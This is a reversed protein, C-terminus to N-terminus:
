ALDWTLQAGVINANAKNTGRVTTVQTGLIGTNNLPADKIFLHSYGIAVNIAKTAQFKAGISVIYRDDDALRLNRDVDNVPSEDFGAGAMLTLQENWKYHAGATFAWVNKYNEPVNAVGVTTPFNGAAPPLIGAVNQLRINKFSDWGTYMVTAMLAVKDTVDAYGSLTYIAPLEVDTEANQSVISVGGTAAAALPGNLASTGRLNVDVPSRYAFGVRAHDTVDVLVGANWGYGWGEAQNLSNTDFLRPAGKVLTPLGVIGNLDAKMFMVDAGVGVSVNDAVRGGLSPSFDMTKLKTLTNAYRIASNNDYRTSLGFPVTVSFGLVVDDSLPYAIHTAPIVANEGGQLDIANETNTVGPLSFPNSWTSNGTFKSSVWVGDASIVTQVHKIHTLGAPNYFAISADAAEAAMGAGWDGINAGNALHYLSFAAAYSGASSFLLLCATSIKLLKPSYKM